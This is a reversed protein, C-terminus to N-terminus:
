LETLVDRDRLKHGELKSCTGQYPRSQCGGAQGSLICRGCITTCKIFATAQARSSTCKSLGLWESLDVTLRARKPLVKMRRGQHQTM